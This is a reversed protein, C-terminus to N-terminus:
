SRNHNGSGSGTTVRHCHAKKGWSINQVEWGKTILSPITILHMVKLQLTICFRNFFHKAKNFTLTKALAWLILFHTKVKCKSDSIRKCGFEDSSLNAQLLILKSHELNLDCCLNLIETFTQKSSLNRFQEVVLCTIYIDWWLGFNWQFHNVTKITLTM